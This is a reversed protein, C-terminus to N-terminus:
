SSRPRDQGRASSPTPSLLGTSFKSPLYNVSLSMDKSVLSHTHCPAFGNCTREPLNFSLHFSAIFNFSKTVESKCAWKTM